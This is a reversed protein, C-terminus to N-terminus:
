QLFKTSLEYLQHTPSQSSWSMTRVTRYRRPFFLAKTHALCNVCPPSGEHDTFTSGACQVCHADEERFNVTEFGAPCQILITSSMNVWPTDGTNFRDHLSVAWLGPPLVISVARTTDNGTMRVQSCSMWQVSSGQQLLQAYHVDSLGIGTIRFDVLTQGDETFVPSSDFTWFTCHWIKITKDWSGSAVRSGDPSWAVSTVVRSHGTFNQVLFGTAVDWIKITSDSSGSAVRSGDPSWAVSTVDQSHGTFNQVLFGTAVDWIKITNDDSGSAVRSGDPSWAVSNVYSSHGTFTRLEPFSDCTENEVNTGSISKLLTLLTLTWAFRQM